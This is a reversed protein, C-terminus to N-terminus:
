PATTLWRDITSRRWVPGAALRADPEPLRGRVLRQHAAQRTLGLLDAVEALGLVDLDPM